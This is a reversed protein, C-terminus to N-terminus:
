GIDSFAADLAQELQMLEIQPGGNWRATLRVCDVLVHVGQGTRSGPYKRLLLEVVTSTLWVSRDSSWSTDEFAFLLDGERANVIQPSCVWLSHRPEWLRVEIRYMGDPSVSQCEIPYM